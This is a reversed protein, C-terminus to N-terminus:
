QPPTQWAHIRRVLQVDNEVELKELVSTRHKSCTPLSIQLKAAIQKMSQGAVLLDMIERERPTLRTVRNDFDDIPM